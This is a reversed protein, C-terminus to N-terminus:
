FLNFEIESKLWRLLERLKKKRMHSPDIIYKKKWDFFFFFV